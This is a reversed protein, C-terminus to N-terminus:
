ARMRMRMENTATFGMAEYVSRGAASAHLSVVDIQKERAITLLGGVLRQALGRRRYEPYTYVNLIYARCPTLSLPGPPFDMIFMGAGAAVKEGDVALLGIYRDDRLRPIVWEAFAPLSAQLLAADSDGMEAFMQFRHRSIEAADEPTARRITLPATM